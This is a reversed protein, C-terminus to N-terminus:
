VSFGPPSGRQQWVGTGLSSPSVWVVLHALHCMTSGCVVRLWILMAGQVSRGGGLSFLFFFSFLLCYCCFLCATFLALSCFLTFGECCAAPSPLLLLV